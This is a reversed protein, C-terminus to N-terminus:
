AEGRIQARVRAAEDRAYGAETDAYIRDPVSTDTWGGHAMLGERSIGM